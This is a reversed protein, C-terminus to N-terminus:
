YTKKIKTNGRRAVVAQDEAKLPNSKEWDIYKKWYFKQKLEEPTGQPMLGPSNRDLLRTVNEYEKAIKRVNMYERSRDDIM